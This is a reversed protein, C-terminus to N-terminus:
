SEVSILSFKNKLNITELVPSMVLYNLNKSEMELRLELVSDMAQSCKLAMNLSQMKINILAPVLCELIKLNLDQNKELIM